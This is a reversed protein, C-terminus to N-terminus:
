PHHLNRSMLVAGIIAIELAVCILFGWCLSTAHIIFRRQFRLTRGRSKWGADMWESRERYLQIQLQTDSCDDFYIPEVNGTWPLKRNM